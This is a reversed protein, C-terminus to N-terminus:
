WALRDLRDGQDAIQHLVLLVVAGEQHDHRETREAVPNVLKVLYTIITKHTTQSTTQSAYHKIYLTFHRGRRAQSVKFKNDNTSLTFANNVRCQVM